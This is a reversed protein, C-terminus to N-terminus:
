RSWRDIPIRAKRAVSKILALVNERGKATTNLGMIRRIESRKVPAPNGRPSKKNGTPEDMGVAQAITKGTNMYAYGKKLIEPVHVLPMGFYSAAKAELESIEAQAKASTAQAGRLGGQVAAEGLNGAQYNPTSAGGLKGALIPNLGAKRMDAMARQYATNSMKEQFKLTDKNAKYQGFASITASVPDM